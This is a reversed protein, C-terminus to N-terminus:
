AVRSWLSPALIWNPDGNGQYAQICRYTSGGHTVLDGVIYRGTASWPSTNGSGASGSGAGASGASTVAAKTAVTLTGSRPSANGAADTAIIEYRYTAGAVRGIDTYSTAATQAVVLGDRLVSYNKVGVNDTSPSWMLDVTSESEGMSHLGSPASPAQTDPLAGAAATVVTVATSSASTNGAADTARVTYLYSRGAALGRDTYRTTASSGISVGDRFV